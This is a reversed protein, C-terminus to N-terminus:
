RGALLGSDPHGAPGQSDGPIGRWRSHSSISYTMESMFQATQWRRWTGVRADPGGIAKGTGQVLDSLILTGGVGGPSELPPTRLV